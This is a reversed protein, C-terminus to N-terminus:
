VKKKFFRFILFYFLISIISLCILIISPALFPSRKQKTINLTNTTDEITAVLATQEKELYFTYTQTENETESKVKIIMINELTEEYKNDIIELKDSDNELQYTFEVENAEENLKITYINNKENFKTLLTGNKVEFDKLYGGSAFVEVPFFLFLILLLIKM